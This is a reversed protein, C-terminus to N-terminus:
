PGYNETPAILREVRLGDVDGSSGLLSQVYRFSGPAGAVPADELLCLAALGGDAEFPDIGGLCELEAGTQGVHEGRPGVVLLEGVREADVHIKWNTWMPPDNEFDSVRVELGPWHYETGSPDDAHEPEHAEVEAETGIAGALADIAASPDETWAHEALVSGEEDLIAFREAELVLEAARPTGTREPAASTSGGGDGPPPPTLRASGACGALALGGVLALAGLSLAARPM